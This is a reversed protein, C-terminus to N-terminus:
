GNGVIQYTTNLWQVFVSSDSKLSARPQSTFNMRLEEIGVQFVQVFDKRFALMKAVISYGEKPCVTSEPSYHGTIRNLSQANRRYQNRTNIIIM